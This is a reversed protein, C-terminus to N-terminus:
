FIRSKESLYLVFIDSKKTFSFNDIHTSIKQFKWFRVADGHDAHQIWSIVGSFKESMKTSPCM